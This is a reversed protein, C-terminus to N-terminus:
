RFNEVLMLDRGGPQYQAYLLSQGDPSVALSTVRLGLQTIRRPASAGCSALLALEIGTNPGGLGVYVGAGATAFNLYFPLRRGKKDAGGDLPASWLETENRQKTYYLYRGDPSEAAALGGNKTVQVAAGGAPSVKWIEHRGTRKSGFYIRSGDHSWSPLVDEAPEQTLRRPRGGESGIVYIEAQGDPRSHFAISKGDPSWSPHDTVPGAFTTLQM